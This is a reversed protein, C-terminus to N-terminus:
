VGNGGACLSRLQRQVEQVHELMFRYAKEENRSRLAEVIRRHFTLNTTNIERDLTLKSVEEEVLDMLSNVTLILVPNETAQAILRHFKLDHHAPLTNGNLLVEVETLVDELETVQKDSARQTALRAMEPELLLRAETLHDLSAKGLRLLTSLSDSVQKTTAAAIYYGGGMGQKVSLLGSNALAHLAERVSVRSVGFAEVLERESPLKDGPKLRGSFVAGKIQSVIDESVRHGRVSTFGADEM